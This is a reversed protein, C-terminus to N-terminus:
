YITAVKFDFQTDSALIESKLAYISSNEVVKRSETLAFEFKSAEKKSDFELLWIRSDAHIVNVLPTKRGKSDQIQVATAESVDSVLRPLIDGYYQFFVLKLRYLCLWYRSNRYNGTSAAAKMKKMGIDPARKLIDLPPGNCMAVMTIVPNQPFFQVTCLRDATFLAHALPNIATTAVSSSSSTYFLGGNLTNSNNTSTTSFISSASIGSSPAHKNSNPSILPLSTTSCVSAASSLHMAAAVASSSSHVASSYPVLHYKFEGKSEVPPWQANCYWCYHISICSNIVM